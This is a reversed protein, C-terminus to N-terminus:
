ILKRYTGNPEFINIEIKNSHNVHQIVTNDQFEIDVTSHKSSKGKIIHCYGDEEEIVGDLFGSVLVLGLQGNTFPLLPRKGEYKDYPVEEKEYINKFTNTNLAFTKSEELSINEGRFIFRKFSDPSHKLVYEKQVTPIEFNNESDNFKAKFVVDRLQDFCNKADEADIESNSRKQAVLTIFTVTYASKDHLVSINTFRKVFEYCFDNSLSYFPMHLILVGNDKLLTSLRRIHLIEEVSTFNSHNNVPVFVFDNIEKTYPLPSYAVDFSKASIHAKRIDDIIVKKHAELQVFKDCIGYFNFPIGWEKKAVSAFSKLLQVGNHYNYLRTVDGDLFRFPKEENTKFLPIITEWSITETPTYENYTRFFEYHYGPHLFSEKFLSRFRSLYSLVESFKTVELAKCLDEELQRFIYTSIAPSFYHGGRSICNSEKLAMRECVYRKLDYLINCFTKKTTEFALGSYDDRDLKTYLSNLREELDSKEYYLYLHSM